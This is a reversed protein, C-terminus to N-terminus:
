LSAVLHVYWGALKIVWPLFIVILTVAVSFQLWIKSQENM